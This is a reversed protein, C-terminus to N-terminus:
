VGAGIIAKTLSITCDMYNSKAGVADSNFAAGGATSSTIVRRRQGAVAPRQQRPQDFQGQQQQQPVPHFNRSSIQGDKIHIRIMPAACAQPVRTPRLGINAAPLIQM